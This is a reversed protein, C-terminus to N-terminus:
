KERLKKTVAFAAGAVAVIVASIMITSKLRQVADRKVNQNKKKATEDQKKNQLSATIQSSVPDVNVDRNQAPNLEQLIDAAPFKEGDSQGNSSAM